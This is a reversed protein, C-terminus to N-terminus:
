ALEDAALHKFARKSFIVVVAWRIVQGAAVAHTVNSFARRYSLRAHPSEGRGRMCLGRSDGHVHAGGKSSARSAARVLHVSCRPPLTTKFTIRLDEMATAYRAVGSLWLIAVPGMTGAGGAADRARRGQGNCGAHAAHHSTSFHTAVSTTKNCSCITKYAVVVPLSRMCAAHM